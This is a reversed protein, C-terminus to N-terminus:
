RAPRAVYIVQYSLTVPALPIVGVPLWLGVPVMRDLVWGAGELMRRVWRPSLYWRHDPDYFWRRTNMWEAVVTPWAVPNPTSVVLRGDGAVVTHLMRLFGYPDELHEILEAAIVTDFVQGGFTAPDTVDGTIHATYNPAAVAPERVDVGVLHPARLYRNPLQAYGLDAVREGAAAGAILRLRRHEYRDSRM